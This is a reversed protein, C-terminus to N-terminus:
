HCTSSDHYILALHALGLHLGPWGFICAQGALISDLGYQLFALNLRNVPGGQNFTNYQVGASREAVVNFVSFFKASHSCLIFPLCSRLLFLILLFICWYPSFSNILYFCSWNWIDLLEFLIFSWPYFTSFLKGWHSWYCSFLLHTDNCPNYPSLSTLVFM